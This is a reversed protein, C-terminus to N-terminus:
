IKRKWFELMHEDKEVCESIRKAENRVQTNICVKSM